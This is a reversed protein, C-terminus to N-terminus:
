IVGPTHNIYAKEFAMVMFFPTRVLAPDLEKHYRELEQQSAKPELTVKHILNYHNAVNILVDPPWYYNIVTLLEGENNLFKRTVAEGPKLGQQTQGPKWETWRFKTKEDLTRPDPLSIGLTSYPKLVRAAEEFMGQIMEESHFTNITMSCVAADFTEDPFPLKKAPAHIFNINAIDKNFARAQELMEESADIGIVKGARQAIARTIFGNGCGIDLVTKGLVNGLTDLLPIDCYLQRDLPSSYKAALEKDVNWYVDEASM